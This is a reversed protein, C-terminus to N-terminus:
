TLEVLNLQWTVGFKDQVWGFKRSFPYEALPMLVIGDVSLKEFAWDIEDETDCTVFLSIGPTFGFEHGVSSDICMIEQGKVTFAAQMVSGEVGAEDPGYKSIYIVEADNFAEVYHEMAEEATGSFMLFPHVKQKDM